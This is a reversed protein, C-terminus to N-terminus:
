PRVEDEGHMDFGQPQNNQNPNVPNAPNVPPNSAETAPHGAGTESDAAPTAGDSNNAPAAGSQTPPNTEPPAAIIEYGFAQNIERRTLADFPGPEIRREAYAANFNSLQQFYDNFTNTLATADREIERALRRSRRDLLKDKVKFILYTKAQHLRSGGLLIAFHAFFALVAKGILHWSQVQAARTGISGGGATAMSFGVITAPVALCMLVSAAGWLWMQGRTTAIAWQTQFYAETLLIVLPIVFIAAYILTQNGQAFDKAIQKANGSLLFTDLLYAAPYILLLLLSTSILFAPSLDSETFETQLSAWNSQKTDTLTQQERRAAVAHALDHLRTLLGAIATQRTLRNEAAHTEAAANKAAERRQARAAMERRINEINNAM